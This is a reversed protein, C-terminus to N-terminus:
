AVSKEEKWRGLASVVPKVVMNLKQAETTEPPHIILPQPNFGPSRAHCALMRGGSSMGQRPRSRCDGKEDSKRQLDNMM